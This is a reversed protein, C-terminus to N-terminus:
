EVIDETSAPPRERRQPRQANEERAEGGEARRYSSLWKKRTIQLSNLQFALPKNLLLSGMKPRQIAIRSGPNAVSYRAGASVKEPFEAARHGANSLGGGSQRRPGAARLDKVAATLEAISQLLPQQLTETAEEVQSEVQDVDMQSTQNPSRLLQNDKCVACEKAVAFTKPAILEVYECSAKNMGNLYFYLLQGDNCEDLRNALSQFKVTYTRLNEGKAQKLGMFESPLHMM